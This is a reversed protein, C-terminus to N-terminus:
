RPGRKNAARCLVSIFQMNGIPEITDVDYLQGQHRLTSKTTIRPDYRLVFAVELKVQNQLYAVKVETKVRERKGYVVIPTGYTEIPTGTADEDMVIPLIEIKERLKGAGIM